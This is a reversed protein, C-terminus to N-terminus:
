TLTKPRALWQRCSPLFKPMRAKSASMNRSAKVARNCRGQTVRHGGGLKWRWKILRGLCATYREIFPAAWKKGYVHPPRRPSISGAAVSGLPALHSLALCIWHQDGGPKTIQFYCHVTPVRRTLHEWSFILRLRFARLRLCNVRGCTM